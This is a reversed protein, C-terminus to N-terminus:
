NTTFNRYGMNYHYFTQTLETLVYTNNVDNIHSHNGHFGIPPNVSFSLDLLYARMDLLFKNVKSNM